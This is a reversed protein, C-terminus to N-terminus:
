VTGSLVALSARIDIFNIPEANPTVPAANKRASMAGAHPDELLPLLVPLSAPVDDPEALPLELPLALPLALPLV